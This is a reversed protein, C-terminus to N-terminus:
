GREEIINRVSLTTGTPAECTLLEPLLTNREWKIQFDPLDRQANRTYIFQIAVIDKGKFPNKVTLKLFTDCWNGWYSSGMSEEGGFDLLNGGSDQEGRSKRTHHAMITAFHYQHMLDDINDQFKKVDYEDTIKGAMMKYLPDLVLVLQTGPNSRSKVEEIDHKLQAYGVPTDLKFKEQPTKFFVNDPDATLGHKSKFHEMYKLIREKDTAKPLETQIKLISCQRTKYGFWSRGTAICTGLHISQMSKWAKPAGVALLRTEPLLIGDSIIADGIYPPKWIRLQSLNDITTAM